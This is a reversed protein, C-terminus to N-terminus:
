DERHNERLRRDAWARIQLHETRCSLVSPKREHEEETRGCHRCVWDHREPNTPEYTRPEPTPQTDLWRERFPRRDEATLCCRALFPALAEALAGAGLEHKGDVTRIEQALADILETGGERIITAKHEDVAAVFRALIERVSTANVGHLHQRLGTLRALDLLKEPAIIM